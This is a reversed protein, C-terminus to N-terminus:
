SPRLARAKRATPPAQPRTKCQRTGRAKRPTARATRGRAPTSIPATKRAAFSQTQCPQKKPNLRKKHFPKVCKDHPRRKGRRSRIRRLLTKRFIEIGSVRKLFYASKSVELQVVGALRSGSGSLREPNACDALGLSLPRKRHFKRGGANLAALGGDYLKGVDNQTPSHIEHKDLSVLSASLHRKGAFLPRAPLHRQAGGNGLAFLGVHRDCGGAAAFDGHVVNFYGVKRVRPEVVGFLIKRAHFKQGVIGYEGLRVVRYVQNWLIFKKRKDVFVPLELVAVPRVFDM